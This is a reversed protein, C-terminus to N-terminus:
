GLWIVSLAVLCCFGFTLIPYAQQVTQWWASSGKYPFVFIPILITVHLPVFWLPTGLLLWMIEVGVIVLIIPTRKDQNLHLYKAAMLTIATSGFFLVLEGLVMDAIWTLELQTLVIAMNPILRLATLIAAMIIAVLGFAHWRSGGQREMFTQRLFDM